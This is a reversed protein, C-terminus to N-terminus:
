ISTAAKDGSFRLYFHGDSAIKLGDSAIKLLDICTAGVDVLDYLMGYVAHRFEQDQDALKKLDVSKAPQDPDM